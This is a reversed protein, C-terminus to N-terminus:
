QKLWFGVIVGIVGFAWKRAEDDPKNMTSLIMGIALLGVIATVIIPMYADIQPAGSSASAAPSDPSPTTKAQALLQKQTNLFAAHEAPTVVRGEKQRSIEIDVSKSAEEVAATSIATVRAPQPHVRGVIFFALVALVFLGVAFLQKM